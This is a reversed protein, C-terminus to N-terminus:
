QSISQQDTTNTQQISEKAKSQPEEEPTENTTQKKYPTRKDDCFSKDAFFIFIAIVFVVIVIPVVIIVGLIGGHRALASLLSEM